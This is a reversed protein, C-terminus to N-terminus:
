KKTEYDFTIVSNLGGELYPIFADSAKEHDKTKLYENIEQENAFEMEFLHTYGQSDGLSSRNTGWTFTKIQPDAKRLKGMGLILEKIKDESTGKKFKILAIHKIM